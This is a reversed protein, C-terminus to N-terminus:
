RQLRRGQPLVGEDIVRTRGGNAPASRSRVAGAEGRYHALLREHVDECLERIDRSIEPFTRRTGTSSRIAAVAGAPVRLGIFGFIREFHEQPANVLDEYRVLLVDSRENSGLDFFLANRLYWMVANAEHESMDDRYLRAV